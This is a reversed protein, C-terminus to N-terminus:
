SPFNVHENNQRSSLRWLWDSLHCLHATWVFASFSCNFLEKV